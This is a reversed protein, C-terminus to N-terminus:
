IRNMIERIIYAIVDFTMDIVGNVEMVIFGKM